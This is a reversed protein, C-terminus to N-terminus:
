VLGFALSSYFSISVSGGVPSIVSLTGTPTVSRIVPNLQATSIAFTSGPVVATNTPDVYFDTGSTSSFVAVDTDTPVAVSQATNATLTASYNKDSFPLGYSVNGNVDKLLLFKVTM